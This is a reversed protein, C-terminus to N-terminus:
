SYVRGRWSSSKGKLHAIASSLTMGGYLIGALPLTWAFSPAVRHHRVYPRISVAQLTWALAAAAAILLGQPADGTAAVRLGSLLLIPPGAVFLLIGLLTVMLLLWSRRLQVFANRAVMNWLESFGYGRVSVVGPDLGLWIRSGSRKFARALAVDDILDGAIAELGGASDLSRPRLLICGGAAAATRSGAHAVRRFPYLLHFFYVFPPVLLREWFRGASLRAMVSVLDSSTDSAQSVLADVSGRRHEIDADSFLLWDISRHNRMSWAQAARLGENLAHVKGSWGAPRPSAAIVLLETAARSKPDAPLTRAPLTKAPLTKATLPEATLGQAIEATGDTSSDDVVIVLDLIPQELLSPLTTPLTNAENRAPVIAVLTSRASSHSGSGDPLFFEAPWRRAPALTLALWFGGVAVALAVLLM